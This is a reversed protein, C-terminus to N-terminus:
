SPLVAGPWLHDPCARQPDAATLGHCHRPSGRGDDGIAGSPRDADFRSVMWRLVPIIQTANATINGCARYHCGYCICEPSASQQMRLYYVDNARSLMYYDHRRYSPWMGVIELCSSRGRGDSPLLMTWALGMGHVGALSTSAQVLAYQEMVPLDEMIAFRVASALVPDAEIDNRFARMNVIQRTGRRLQFLIQRNPHPLRPTISAAIANRFSAVRMVSEKVPGFPPPMFPGHGGYLRRYCNCTEMSTAARMRPEALKWMASDLGLSRALLQWGVYEAGVKSLDAWYMLFHPLVVIHRHHSGSVSRDFTQRLRAYYEYTPVSHIFAHFLNDMSMEGIFATEDHWTCNLPPSRDAGYRKTTWASIAHGRGSLESDLRTYGPAYEAYIDPWPLPWLLRRSVSHGQGLMGFREVTTWPLRAHANDKMANPSYAICANEFAWEGHSLDSRRRALSASPPQWEAWETSKVWTSRVVISRPSCSRTQDSEGHVPKAQVEFEAIETAFQSECTQTAAPAEAAKRPTACWTWLLEISKRKQSAPFRIAGPLRSPYDVWLVRSANLLFPIANRAHTNASVETDGTDELMSIKAAAVNSHNLFVSAAHQSGADVLVTIPEMPDSRLAHIATSFFCAPPWKIDAALRVLVRPKKWLVAVSDTGRAEIYTARPPWPLHDADTSM